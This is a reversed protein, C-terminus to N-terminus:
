ARTCDECYFLSATCKQAVHYTSAVGTVHCGRSCLLPWQGLELDSHYGRVKCLRKAHMTDMYIYCCFGVHMELPIQDYKLADDLCTFCSVAQSVAGQLTAQLSVRDLSLHGSLGVIWCVLRPDCCLLWM